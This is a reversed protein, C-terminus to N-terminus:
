MKINDVNIGLQKFLINNELHIHQFLDSELEELKQFTRSYTGCGDEPVKYNDTVRRLEKVINGAADHEAEIENVSASIRDLLEKSPKSDYEKIIPFLIEEKKILHQELDTKLNHLLKHVKSLIDGKNERDIILYYLKGYNLVTIGTM